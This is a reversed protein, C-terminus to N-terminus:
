DSIRLKNFTSPMTTTFKEKKLEDITSKVKQIQEVLLYDTAKADEYELTRWLKAGYGRPVVDLGGFSILDAILVVAARKMTDTKEMELVGLACDLADKVFKNLGLANVRLSEGLLSMASMRLKEDEDFNNIVTLTAGIVSDVLEGTTLLEGQRDIFNMLVEGIKLRDDLTEDKNLYTKVLFQVTGVKDFEVLENLSKIVNLYIFPENDHLQVIHLELVFDLSLVKSKKMILQRLLYMGHARIPILPDNMNNIAKKFLEKDATLEDEQQVEHDGTLFDDIRQKLAACYKDANYQTLLQSIQKLTEEDKLLAQPPTESIIASLLELLVTFHSTQTDEEDEDDSDVDQSDAETDFKVSLLNKIVQLIDSPSETISEKFEKNVRELFKLDILAIFPNEEELSTGMKGQKLIWRNLVVLFQTRVIDNDLDKLLECVTDLGTDIDELIQYNTLEDDLVSSKVISTLKNELTTQFHWGDGHSNVLNLVINELFTNNSTVTFFSVLINSVISSYELKNKKLYFYYSWLSLILQSFLDNLFEPESEKSLSILVNTSDNLEKESVLVGSQQKDPTPNWTSWIRKFLFDQVIRKNKSYLVRIFNVVVSVLVPRNVYVLINYLQSFLKQFYEVSPIERPKSMLIKNVHGFNEVNIEEDERIGVIFDILSSVGNPRNITVSNLRSSIFQQYSVVRTTQLLATYIGFLDYADCKSEFVEFKEIWSPDDEVMLVMLLTLIDTLGSGKILLDKVDGGLEFVSSFRSVIREMLPHLDGQVTSFQFLKLRKAFSKIRRQELPIGVGKPLLPYVCQVILVNILTTFFKMDHLSITILNVKEPDGSERQQKQKELSARQIQDLYKFCEDTVVSVAEVPEVAQPDVKGALQQLASSASKEDIELFRELESFIRDLASQRSIQPVNLGKRQSM